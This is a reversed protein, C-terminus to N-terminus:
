RQRERRRLEDDFGIKENKEEIEGDTQNDLEKEM